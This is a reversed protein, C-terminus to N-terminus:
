RKKRSRRHTRKLHRILIEQSKEKLEEVATSVHHRPEINKTGEELYRGYPELGTSKDGFDVETIGHVDYGVSRYLNRTVIAPAEGPASAQHLNGNYIYLAGTKPNKMLRRIKLVHLKGVDHLANKLAFETAGIITEIVNFNAKNKKGAILSIM